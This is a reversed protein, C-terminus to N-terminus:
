HKPTPPATPISGPKLDKVTVGGPIQSAVPIPPQTKGTKSTVLVAGALAAAALGSAPGFATQSTASTSLGSSAFTQLVAATTAGLTVIGLLSVFLTQGTTLPYDKGGATVTVDGPDCQLCSITDGNADRAYLGMTGRVAIQSTATRFTYNSAAGAPHKVDFRMAGGDLVITSGNGAANLRGFLVSTNPGLAVQSSDELVVLGRSAAHTVAYTDDAVVSKGFIRKFAGDKAPSVGVEGRVSQLEKQSAAGAPMAAIVAATVLLALPRRFLAFPV